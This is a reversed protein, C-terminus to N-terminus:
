VEFFRILHCLGQAAEARVAPLKDRLRETLAETVTDLVTDDQLVEAPLHELLQHLLQCAHQRVEKDAAATHASVHELLAEVAATAAESGIPARSAFSGFFTICHQVHPSKQPTCFIDYAEYPQSYGTTAM